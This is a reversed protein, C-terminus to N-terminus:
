YNLHILKLSLKIYNKLQYIIRIQFKKKLIKFIFKYHDKILVSNMINFTEKAKLKDNNEHPTFGLKM